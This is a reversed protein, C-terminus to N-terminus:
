GNKLQTMNKLIGNALEYEYMKTKSYNQANDHM